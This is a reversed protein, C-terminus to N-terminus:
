NAQVLIYFYFIVEPCEKPPSGYKVQDINIKMIDLALIYASGYIKKFLLIAFMKLSIWILHVDYTNFHLKNRTCCFKENINPYSKFKNNIHVSVLWKIQQVQPTNWFDLEVQRRWM